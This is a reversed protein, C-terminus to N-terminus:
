LRVPTRSVRCHEAVMIAEVTDVTRDLAGDENAIAYDFDRVHALEDPVLAMRQQLSEPSESGRSLMRTRLVEVSLTYIFILVAGPALRKLTEAGAVDTRMVVDVGDALATAVQQRPVGRYTGNYLQHELLGGSQLLRLFTTEDYFFYDVGDREDPRPPRTTATITFHCHRGRRRLEKLVADKGAGSPGSLVVLLPISNM